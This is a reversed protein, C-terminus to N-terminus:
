KFVCCRKPRLSSHVERKCPCAPFPFDVNCFIECNKYKTVVNPIVMLFANVYTCVYRTNTLLKEFYTQLKCPTWGKHSLSKWNFLSVSCQAVLFLPLKCNHWTNKVRHGQFM